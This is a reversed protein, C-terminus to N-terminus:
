MEDYEEGNEDFCKCLKWETTPPFEYVSSSNCIYPNDEINYLYYTKGTLTDIVAPTNDYFVIEIHLNEATDILNQLRKVLPTTKKMRKWTDM